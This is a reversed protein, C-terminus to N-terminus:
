VKTFTSDCMRNVVAYYLSLEYIASKEHLNVGLRKEMFLFRNNNGLYSCGVGHVRKGVLDPMDLDGCGNLSGINVLRRTSFWSVINHSRVVSM